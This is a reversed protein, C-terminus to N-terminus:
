GRKGLLGMARLGWVALIFAGIILVAEAANAQIKTVISASDFTGTAAAANGAVTVLATGTAVAVSKVKNKANAFAQKTREFM